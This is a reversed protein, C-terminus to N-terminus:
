RDKWKIFKVIDKVIDVSIIEEGDVFIIKNPYLEALDNYFFLDSAEKGAQEEVLLRVKTYEDESFEALEVM